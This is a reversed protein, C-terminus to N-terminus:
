CFSAQLPRCGPFVHHNDAPIPYHFNIELTAGIWDEVVYNGHEKGNRREMSALLLFSGVSM